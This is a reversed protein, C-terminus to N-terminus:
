ECRLLWGSVAEWYDNGSMVASQVRVKAVLPTDDAKSEEEGEQM